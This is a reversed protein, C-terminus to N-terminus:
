YRSRFGPLTQDYALQGFLSANPRRWLPQRLGVNFSRTSGVLDDGALDQLLRYDSWGLSGLVTLGDPTIPLNVSGM